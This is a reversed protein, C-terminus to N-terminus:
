DTYCTRKAMAKIRDIICQSVQDRSLGYHRTVFWTDGRKISICVTFGDPKADAGSDPEVTAFDYSDGNKWRRSLVYTKGEFLEGFINWNTEACMRPIDVIKEYESAEM